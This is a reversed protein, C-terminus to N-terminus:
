RTDQDNRMASTTTPPSADSRQAAPLRNGMDIRNSRGTLRLWLDYFVNTSAAGSGGILTFRAADRTVAADRLADANAQMGRTIARQWAAVSPSEPPQVTALRLLLEPKKETWFVMESTVSVVLPSDLSAAVASVGPRVVIRERVDAFRGQPTIWLVASPEAKWRAHLYDVMAPLSAADDPEIGFVGLKKLIGFKALQGAEMPAYGARGPLYRDALWMGVLPDWWSHHNMVVIAPRAEAALARMVDDGGDRCLWVGHWNKRMMPGLVRRVFFRHVFASPEAPVILPKSTARGLM